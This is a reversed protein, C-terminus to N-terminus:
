SNWEYLLIFAFCLDASNTEYFVKKLTLNYFPLYEEDILM